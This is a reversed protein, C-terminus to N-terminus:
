SPRRRDKSAICGRCNFPATLYCGRLCMSHLNNRSGSSIVTASQWMRAPIANQKSIALIYHGVGEGWVSDRYGLQDFVIYVHQLVYFHGGVDNCIMVSLIATLNIAVDHHV